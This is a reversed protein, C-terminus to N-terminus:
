KDKHQHTKRDQQMLKMDKSKKKRKKKTNREARIEWEARFFSEKSYGFSNSTTGLHM